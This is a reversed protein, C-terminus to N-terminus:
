GSSAASRFRNLSEGGKPVRREPHILVVGDPTELGLVLCQSVVGAANRPPINVLAVVQRGVPQDAPYLVTLQSSSTRTGLPGFDITLVYAPKRAKANPECAVV